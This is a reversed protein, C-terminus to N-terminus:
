AGGGRWSHSRPWRRTGGRWQDLACCGTGLLWYCRDSWPLGRGRFESPPVQLAGNKFQAIGACACINGTSGTGERHERYRAPEAGPVAGLAGQM